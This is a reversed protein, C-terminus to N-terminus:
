APEFSGCFDSPEVLPFRRASDLAVEPPGFRCEGMGGNDLTRESDLMDLHPEVARWWSYDCNSCQRKM